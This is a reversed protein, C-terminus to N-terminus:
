DVPPDVACFLDHGGGVVVRGPSVMDFGKGDENSGDFTIYGGGGSGFVSMPWRLLESNTMELAVVTMAALATRRAWGDLFWVNPVRQMVACWYVFVLTAVPQRDELARVFVPSVACPWFFLHAWRCPYGGVFFVWTRLLALAEDCATVVEIPTDQPHQAEYGLRALAAQTQAMDYTNHHNNNNPDSSNHLVFAQSDKLFGIKLLHQLLNTRLGGTGRLVHQFIELYDFDAAPTFRVAAFNFMLNCLTFLLISPWNDSDVQGREVGRFASSAAVNAQYAAPLLEAARSPARHLSHLTSVATVYPVLYHFRGPNQSYQPRFEFTELYRGPIMTQPPECESEFWRVVNILSEQLVLSPQPSTQSRALAASISAQTPSKSSPSGKTAIVSTATVIGYELTYDCVERRRSCNSCVPGQLNCRVRRRKCQGCAITVNTIIRISALGPFIEGNRTKAHSRRSGM